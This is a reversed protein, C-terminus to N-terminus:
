FSKDMYAKYVKIWMHETLNRKDPTEDTNLFYQNLAM